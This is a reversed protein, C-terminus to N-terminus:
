GGMFYDLIACAHVQAVVLLEEIPVFEDAAGMNYLGPGYTLTEIGAARWLRADTAGIKILKQAQVGRVVQVARAVACAILGDPDSYTAEHRAATWLSYGSLGAAQLASSLAHEVSASELGVPLRVDVEAQCGGPVLNRSNGGRITGVNVSPRVLLEGTGPGYHREVYPYESAVINELSSPIRARLSRLGEMASIARCMGAIASEGLCDYAGHAARGTVSLDFWWSGKEGIGIVDLGGPEGILCADGEAV